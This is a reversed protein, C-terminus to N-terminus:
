INSLTQSERSGCSMHTVINEIQVLYQLFSYLISLNICRILGVVLPLVALCQCAVALCNGSVYDRGVVGELGFLEPYQIWSGVFSHYLIPFLFSM